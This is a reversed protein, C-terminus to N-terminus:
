SPVICQQAQRQLCQRSHDITAIYGQVVDQPRYWGPAARKIRGDRVLQTIWSPAKGILKSAEALSIVVNTLSVKKM